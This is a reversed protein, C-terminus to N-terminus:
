DKTSHGRCADTRGTLEQDSLRAVPDLSGMTSVNEFKKGGIRDPSQGRYASGSDTGLRRLHVELSGPYLRHWSDMCCDVALGIVGGLFLDGFVWPNLGPKVLALSPEYGPMEVQVHHEVKRDLSVDTPTPGQPQGDVIVMAGEPTSKIKVEQPNHGGM